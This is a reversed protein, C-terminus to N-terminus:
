PGSDGNSVTAFASRLIRIQEPKLPPAEAAMRQAWAKLDSANSLQGRDESLAKDLDDATVYLKRGDRVAPLRGAKIYRRITDVSRNSRDAAAKLDLMQTNQSSFIFPLM